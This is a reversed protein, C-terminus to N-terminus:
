SDEDPTASLIAGLTARARHSLRGTLAAAEEAGRRLADQLAAAPIPAVQALEADSLSLLLAPRTNM